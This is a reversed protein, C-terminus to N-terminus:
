ENIGDGKEVEKIVENKEMINFLEEKDQRLKMDALEYFGLRTIFNNATINATVGHETVIISYYNEQTKVKLAKTCIREYDRAKSANEYDNKDVLKIKNARFVNRCKLLTKRMQNYDELIIKDM